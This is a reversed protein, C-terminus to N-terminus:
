AALIQELLQADVGHKAVLAVSAKAAASDARDTGSLMVIRAAPLFAKIALAAAGGDMRPMHFDMLILDPTLRKTQEVAEVGDRAEGVVVAWRPLLERVLTRFRDDDDVLLVRM